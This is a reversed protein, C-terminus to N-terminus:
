AGRGTQEIIDLIDLLKGLPREKISYMEMFDKLKQLQEASVPRSLPASQLVAADAEPTRWLGAARDFADFFGDGLGKPSDPTLQNWVKQLEGKTASFFQEPGAFQKALTEVRNVITSSVGTKRLEELIMALKNM